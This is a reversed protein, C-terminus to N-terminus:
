RCTPLALGSVSVLLVALMSLGDLGMAARALFGEVGPLGLRGKQRLCHVALTLLALCTAAVIVVMHWRGEAVRCLVSEMAYILLFHAAWVTPGLLASAARGISIARSTM